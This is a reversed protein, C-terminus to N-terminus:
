RLAYVANDERRYRNKFHNTKFVFAHVTTKFAPLGQQISSCLWRNWTYWVYVQMNTMWQIGEYALVGFKIHLILLKKQFLVLQGESGVLFCDIEAGM